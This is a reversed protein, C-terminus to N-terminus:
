AGYGIKSTIFFPSVVWRRLDEHLSTRSLPNSGGRGTFPVLDQAQRTQWNRWERLNIACFWLGCIRVQSTCKWLSMKLVNDPEVCAGRFLLVAFDLTFPDPGLDRAADAGFKSGIEGFVSWVWSRVSSRGGPGPRFQFYLFLQRGKFFHRCCLGLVSIMGTRHLVPM